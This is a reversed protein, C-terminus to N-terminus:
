NGESGFIDIGALEIFTLAAGIVSIIFGRLLNFDARVGVIRIPHENDDQKIFEMMENMFTTKNRSMEIQNIDFVHHMNDLLNRHELHSLTSELAEMSQLRIYKLETSPIANAQNAALISRLIQLLQLIQLM